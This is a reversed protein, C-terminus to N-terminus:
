PREITPASRRPVYRWALGALIFAGGVLTWWAPEERYRLWVWIPVMVPELLGIGAAETGSIKQVGRAFFFYAMGLQLVGFALLAPWQWGSPVIGTALPTPSLLLATVALNVIVLWASDFGRLRHLYHIVGAYFLGSTLGLLVGWLATDNWAARSMECWLILGIGCGAFGLTTLDRRDIKEGGLRSFLCVWAPAINQLWIANAATTWVMSQLFCVSMSFFFLSMPVLRLNFQPKRVLPLLAVVAFVARWMGLLMGRYESPWDSFLPSKVFLGNTSWLVAALLVFLRGQTASSQLNM